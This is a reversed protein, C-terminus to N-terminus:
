LGYLEEDTLTKLGLSAILGAAQAMSETDLVLVAQQRSKIIFGYADSVNIHASELASAVRYLGGPEDDMLIALVEKENAAMKAARLAQYAEDPRDVLLKIVEFQGSDAITVARININAESLLRAIQGVRGPKNEAFVAIQKAM